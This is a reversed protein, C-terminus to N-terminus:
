SDQEDTTEEESHALGLKEQLQEIKADLDKADMKEISNISGINIETNSGTASRKYDQPFKNNMLMAMANFNFNKIRGMAGALLMEEHVAQSILKSQAYAESFEDYRDLWRYFTDKSIGLKVCMQSVHGGEQAIDLITDCMDPYYKTRRLKPLVEGEVQKNDTM